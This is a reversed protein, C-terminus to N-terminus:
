TIDNSIEVVECGCKGCVRSGAFLEKGWKRCFRIQNHTAIYKLEGERRVQKDEHHNKWLKCLGGAASMMGFTLLATPIGGLIIGCANLGVTILSYLIICAGWILVKM